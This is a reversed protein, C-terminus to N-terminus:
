PSKVLLQIPIPIFEREIQTAIGIQDDSAFRAFRASRTQPKALNTDTWGLSTRGDTRGDTRGHTRGREYRTLWKVSKSSHHSLHFGMGM